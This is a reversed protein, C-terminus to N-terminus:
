NKGLKSGEAIGCCCTTWRRYGSCCRSKPSTTCAIASGRLAAHRSLVRFGARASLSRWSSWRAWPRRSCCPVAVPKLISHRVSARTPCFAGLAGGPHSTSSAHNGFYRPSRLITWEMGFRRPRTFHKSTSEEIRPPPHLNCSDQFFVLGPPGGM